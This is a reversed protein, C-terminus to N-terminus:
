GRMPWATHVDSSDRDRNELYRRFEMQMEYYGVAQFEMLEESSMELLEPYIKTQKWAIRAAALADDTAAHANDLRVGYHSALDTLTRKGKRYRDKLKDIVFPDYVTGTVTFNGTLHRLVTLDYAANFVILSLGDEWGQRIREVTAKLVEEHPEGEERAKETTIGHVKQAAEPIEVGPDAMKEWPSAGSADIRVIASTVIRAELPNASTTELDFSLM